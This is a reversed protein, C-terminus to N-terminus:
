LELGLCHRECISDCLAVAEREAHDLPGDIGRLIRHAEARRNAVCVRMVHNKADAAQHLGFHLALLQGLPHGSDLLCELFYSLLSGILIAWPNRADTAIESIQRRYIKQGSSPPRFDVCGM